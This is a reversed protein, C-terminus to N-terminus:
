IRTIGAQIMKDAISRLLVGNKKEEYSPPVWGSGIQALQSPSVGIKADETLNLYSGYGDSINYQISWAPVEHSVSRKSTFIGEKMEQWQYTSDPKIRNDKMVRLFEKLHGAVVISNEVDYVRRYGLIPHQGKMEELMVLDDIKALGGREVIKESYEEISRDYADQALKEDIASQIPATTEQRRAEFMKELDYDM